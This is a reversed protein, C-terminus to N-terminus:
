FKVPTFDAMGDVTEASLLKFFLDSTEDLLILRGLCLSEEAARFCVPNTRKVTRTSIAAMAALKKRVYPKRKVVPIM